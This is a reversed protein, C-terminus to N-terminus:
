ALDTPMVWASFSVKRLGAFEPKGPVRLMHPGSFEVAGGSVGESRRLGPAQKREPSAHHGNGSSDLSDGGSPEDFSWHAILPKNIRVPESAPDRAPKAGAALSAAAAALLLSLAIHRAPRLRTCRM